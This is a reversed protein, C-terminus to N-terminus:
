LKKSCKVIVKKSLKKFGAKRLNSKFLKIHYSSCVEVSLVYLGGIEDLSLVTGPYSALIADRENM